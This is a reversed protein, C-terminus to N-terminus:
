HKKKASAALSEADPTIIEVMKRRIVRLIKKLPSSITSPDIKYNGDVVTAERIVERHREKDITPVLVVDGRNLVEGDPDYRYIKNRKMSEPWAVGVVEIGDETEDERIELEDIGELEEEMPIIKLEPESECVPEPDPAIIIEEEVKIEYLYLIHCPNVIFFRSCTRDDNEYMLIPIQLTDRIELLEKVTDVHLIQYDTTDFEDTIKQVYSRYNALVRKVKKSYDIHKDRSLIMFGILFAIMLVSLIALVIAVVRLVTVTDDDSILIKNEEQAVTATSKMNVTARLLPIQLEVVYQNTSEEAFEDSDGLVNVRMRVFFTATVGSLNLENVYRRALEDYEHFDIEVTEKISLGSGRKPAEKVSKIPYTPDYLAAGSDKDKILLQGEIEYTYLYNAEASDLKLWYNFDASVHDILSAVYAHNKDLYEETYFENDSLYVRYDVGGKETYYVYTEKSTRACAISVFLTAIVLVIAAISQIWIILNRRKQYLDRQLKELESM